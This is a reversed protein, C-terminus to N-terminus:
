LKEANGPVVRPMFICQSNSQSCSYLTGEVEYLRSCGTVESKIVFKM